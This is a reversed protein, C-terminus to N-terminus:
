KNAQKKEFMKKFEDKPVFSYGNGCEEGEKPIFGKVGNPFAKCYCTVKNEGMNIFNKCVGCCTITVM